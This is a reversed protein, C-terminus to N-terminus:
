PVCSRRRARHLGSLLSIGLAQGQAAAVRDQDSQYRSSRFREFSRFLAGPINRTTFVVTTKFRKAKQPHRFELAANRGKWFFFGHSIKATTRLPNRLFRRGMSRPRRKPRSQPQLGHARKGDGNERQRRHRLVVDERDASKRRLLTQVPQPRGSALVRAPSSLVERRSRAILNHVIRVLTEGQIPLDYKLLHDYNEHVSGHLTNEIPIVACHCKGNVVSVFVDEFNQMPVPIVDEGALQRAAVQSFAGLEGQFAARRKM